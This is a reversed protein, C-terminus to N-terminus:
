LWLTDCTNFATFFCAALTKVTLGLLAGGEQVVAFSESHWCTVLPVSNVMHLLEQKMCTLPFLFLVCIQNLAAPNGGHM